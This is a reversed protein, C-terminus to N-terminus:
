KFSFYALLGVAVISLTILPGTFNKEKIIKPKIEIEAKVGAGVAVNIGKNSQEYFQATIIDKYKGAKMGPKLRIMIKQSESQKIIGASPKIEFFDNYKEPNIKFEKDNSNLNYLVIQREDHGDEEATLKIKEPAVAISAAEASFSLLSLFLFLVACRM